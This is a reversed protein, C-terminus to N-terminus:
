FFTYLIGLVKSLMRSFLVPVMEHDKAPESGLAPKNGEKNPPPVQKYDTTTSAIQSLTAPQDPSVPKAHDQGPKGVFEFESSERSMQNQVLSDATSSASIM